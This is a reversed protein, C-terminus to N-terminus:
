FFEQRLDLLDLLLDGQGQVFIRVAMRNLPLAEHESDRFLYARVKRILETATRSDCYEAVLRFMGM